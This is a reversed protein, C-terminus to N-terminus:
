QQPESFTDLALDTWKEKQEKASPQLALDLVDQDEQLTIDLDPPLEVEDDSLADALWAEDVLDLNYGPAYHSDSM